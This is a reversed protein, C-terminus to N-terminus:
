SNCADFNEDFSQVNLKNQFTFVCRKFAKTEYILEFDVQGFSSFNWILKNAVTLFTKRTFYKYILIWSNSILPGKLAM